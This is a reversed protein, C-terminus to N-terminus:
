MPSARVDRPTRTTSNLARKPSGSVWGSSASSSWSVEGSAPSSIPAAVPVRASTDGGAHRAADLDLQPVVAGDLLRRRVVGHDGDLHDLRDPVLEPGLVESGEVPQERGAALQDGHQVPGVAGVECGLEGGVDAVQAVVEFDSELRLLAAFAGRILAQDDAILIRTM